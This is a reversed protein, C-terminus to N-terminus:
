GLPRTARVGMQDHRPNPPSTTSSATSAACTTSSASRLIGWSNTRSSSITSPGPLSATPGSGCHCTDFAIRAPFTSVATKATKAFFKCRTVERKRRFDKTESSDFARIVALNEATKGRNENFRFRMGTALSKLTDARCIGLSCRWCISRETTLIMM